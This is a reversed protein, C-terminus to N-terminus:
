LFLLTLPLAAREAKYLLCYGTVDALIDVDSCCCTLKSLLLPFKLCMRCKTACKVKLQVFMERLFFIPEDILNFLLPVWEFCHEVAGDTNLFEALNM